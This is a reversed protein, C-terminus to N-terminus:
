IVSVETLHLTYIIIKFQSVLWDTINNVCFFSLDMTREVEVATVMLVLDCVLFERM